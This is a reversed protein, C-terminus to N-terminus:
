KELSLYFGFISGKGYESKVFVRGSSEEIIKKVIALGLGSGKKAPNRSKDIKYFRDWINDIENKPIGIGNDKVWVKVENKIKKAGIEIIESEDSFKDANDFLNLLVQKLRDRNIKVFLKEKPLVIDVKRNENDSRKKLFISINKLFKNLNISEQLFGNAELESLDLIKNVLKELRETEKVITKLYDKKKKENNLIGDFLVEASGKISSLPTKLEHSVNAVFDKQLQEYEWRKTINEFLGVIGLFYDDNIYIPSCNLLIKKTIKGEKNYLNMENSVVKKNEFSEQYTKIVKEKKIIDSAFLNKNNLNENVDLINKVSENFLIIKGSSNIALVGEKMGTLIKKLKNKEEYLNNITKKLTKSMYNMSDALTGLEDNTNVNIKKDFNG